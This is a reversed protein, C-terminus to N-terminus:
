TSTPASLTARASSWMPRRVKTASVIVAPPVAPSFPCISRFMPFNCLFFCMRRIFSHISLPYQIDSHVKCDCNMFQCCGCTSGCLQSYPCLFDTPQHSPLPITFHGPPTPTCSQRNSNPHEGDTKEPNRATRSKSNNGWMDKQPKPKPRDREGKGKGKGGADGASIKARREDAGFMTGHGHGASGRRRRRGGIQEREGVMGDRLRMGFPQRFLTSPSLSTQKAFIM